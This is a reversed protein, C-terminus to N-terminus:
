QLAPRVFQAESVRVPRQDLSAPGSKAFKVQAEAVWANFEAEPVAEITIPMFGHGTGCLESCQGFYVGPVDVQFWTENTRGPVSDMKVGFAPVAFAHLVDSSTTLVRVKKGVPVVVNNDTALLRLQGEKLEDEPVIFADFEFDGHDPYQYTWYWQRGIAKITMDADVAVDALFLLRFSPIAVVVLILVPIATWLVEILTNHTTKSPTPNAKENFRVLVIVLLAVVFLAIATTIILLFNHFETMMRAVPTVPDLFGLQWPRGHTAEQALAAVPSVMVMGVTVAAGFLARGVMSNAFTTNAFVAKENKGLM